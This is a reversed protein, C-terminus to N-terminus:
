KKALRIIAPDYTGNAKLQDRVGALLDAYYQRDADSVEIWSSVAAEAKQALAVMAGFQSKM